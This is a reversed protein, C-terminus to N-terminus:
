LRRRRLVVTLYISAAIMGLALGIPLLSVGASAYDFGEVVVAWLAGLAVALVPPAGVIITATRQERRDWQRSTWVLNLGVGVAAASVLIGFLPSTLALVGGIALLLAAAIEQETWVSTSVAALRAPRLAPEETEARARARSYLLGAVIFPAILIALFVPVGLWPPLAFGECTETMRILEGSDSFEGTSACSEGVFLGLWLAMGPGGPVVLTGLLKERSSWRRSGWLLVAGVAWGILPIFSGVTLLLAAALELGTSSRRAVLVPGAAQSSELAAAVIDEPEGLRDLMTRVTAEDAAAGAARAADIHERIEHLLEARQGPPLNAAAADLRSLYGNVVQDVSDSM